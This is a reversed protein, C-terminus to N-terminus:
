KLSRGHPDDHFVTTWGRPLPNLRGSTLIDGLPPDRRTKKAPPAEFSRLTKLCTLTPVPRKDRYHGLGKHDKKYVWGKGPNAASQKTAAIFEIRDEADGAANGDAWADDIDAACASTLETAWALDAPDVAPAATPKTKAKPEPPPKLPQRARPM